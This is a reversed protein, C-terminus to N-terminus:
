MFVVATGNDNVIQTGKDASLEQLHQVVRDARDSDLIRSQFLVETNRVDIPWFRMQSLKNDKFYAQAIVSSDVKKSYSGFAFNGLSYLIVGQKYQEVAQLVHPHHGIVISAGADIAAHGISEQYPRLETTSERGWHVSVMVIDAKKKAARIDAVIHDLHGFAVGGYQETAWFSDPFTLSYALFALKRGNKDIIRPQRAEDINMGGGVHIINKKDLAQMTQVMGAIGYDLAHNNALSVIDFGARSLASASEAPASKYSWTKDPDVLGWTALPGELNGFTIASRTLLHRTEAFAYDYGERQLIEEATGGLMIDGVLSVTVDANLLVDKADQMLLRQQIDVSLPKPKLQACSFILVAAGSLLLLVLVVKLRTTFM